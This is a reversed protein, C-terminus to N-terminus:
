NYLSEKNSNIEVEQKEMKINEAQTNEAEKKFHESLIRLEEADDGDISESMLVYKAALGRGSDKLEYSVLQGAKLSRYSGEIAIIDSYHIFVDGIQHQIFGFGKSSNFWKVVGQIRNSM